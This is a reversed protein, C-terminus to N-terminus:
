RAASFHRRMIPRTASRRAVEKFGAAIFAPVTGTFAFADPLRGSRSETPYGEVLRAGNRRAHKVAAKLLATGVGKRRYTRAVFLCTISWVPQDDVRALSRSRELIPYNERPEIACWGVPTVGDYALIGPTQGKAVLKRLAKRNGEGKQENWKAQAIRWWM